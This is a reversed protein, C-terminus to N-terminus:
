NICGQVKRYVSKILDRADNEREAEATVRIIPETNSGRVLFWGGPLIVKVGDRADIPYGAYQRHLMRLVASIQHSPCALKEKILSFRPFSNLLATISMGTEALLHLVLAM